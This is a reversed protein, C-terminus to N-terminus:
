SLLQRVKQVAEEPTDVAGLLSGGIRNLLDFTTRDPNLLIVSKTAKLALAIESLTGAEVHGCAIVVDSTLININNRGQGLGTFVAIDVADSTNTADIGPRIGVTVGNGDKAGRSVADMVGRNSGGSLVVWGEKALLMGLRYALQSDAM